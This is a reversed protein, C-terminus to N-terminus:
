KGALELAPAFESRLSEIATEIKKDIGIDLKSALHKDLCGEIRKDLSDLDIAGRDSGRGLASEIFGVLESSANTGRSEAWEKFANWDNEDVRFTALIKAM